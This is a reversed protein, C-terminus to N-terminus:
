RVRAATDSDRAASAKDLRVLLRELESRSIQLGTPRDVQQAAGPGVATCLWVLAAVAATRIIM